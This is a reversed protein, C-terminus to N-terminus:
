SAAAHKRGSMKSIMTQWQVARFWAQTANMTNIAKSHYFAIEVAPRGDFFEFRLMVKHLYVRPLRHHSTDYITRHVKKAICQSVLLLDVLEFAYGKSDSNKQMYLLKGSQGDVGLLANHALLEQSSFRLNNAAAFWAAKELIATEKRKRYLRNVLPWVLIAVTLVAAIVAAVIIINM